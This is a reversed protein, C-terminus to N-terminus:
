KEEMQSIYKHLSEMEDLRATTDEKVYDLGNQSAIMLQKQLNDIRFQLIELIKEKM